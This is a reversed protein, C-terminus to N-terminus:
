MSIIKNNLSCESTNELENKKDIKIFKNMAGKQSANLTKIRRKKQIKSYSSEFKRNWM